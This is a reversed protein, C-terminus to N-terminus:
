NVGEAVLCIGMVRENPKFDFTSGETFPIIYETKLYKPTKDQSPKNIRIDSKMKSLPINSHYLYNNFFSEEESMFSEVIMTIKKVPRIERIIPQKKIILYGNLGVSLILM